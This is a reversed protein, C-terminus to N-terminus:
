VLIDMSFPIGKKVDRPSKKGLVQKLFKPALGFGPRISRINERTFKEGKKIDKVVFLSRKFMLNAYEEEGAEFKARGISKEATRISEVLDKFESPELSFAADPGGESRKLIFHKEIVKAGLAVATIDVITNLNHDSLGVPTGFRKQLASINALRMEEAKPPYSLVCHLLVIDKAGAKKLTKVALKIEDLSTLGCSLIVPKKTKGIKKLLELDGIEYSAIKYLPVNLKELFDVATEDFPTSFFILGLGEAIKKLKAHWEWPTFGKQYLQYLTQGRWEKNKGGVKFLDSDHNITLTDPTYTQLKVADAGSKAAAKILAAAKNFNQNHNGSLEAVIFTPSDPGIFKNKIKISRYM